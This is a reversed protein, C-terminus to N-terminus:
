RIGGDEPNFAELKTHVCLLCCDKNVYVRLSWIKFLKKMEEGNFSYYLNCKLNSLKQAKYESLDSVPDTEM